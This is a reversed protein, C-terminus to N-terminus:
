SFLLMKFDHLFGVRNGVTGLAFDYIHLPRGWLRYASGFHIWLDNNLISVLHVISQINNFCTTSETGVNM